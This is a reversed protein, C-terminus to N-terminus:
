YIITRDDPLRMPFLHVLCSYPIDIGTWQDADNSHASVRWDARLDICVRQGQSRTM